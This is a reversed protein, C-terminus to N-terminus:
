FALTGASDAVLRGKGSKHSIEPPLCPRLILRMGGKEMKTASELHCFCNLSGLIHVFLTSGDRFFGRVNM